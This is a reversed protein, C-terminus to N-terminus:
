TFETFSQLPGLFHPFFVATSQCAAHAGSMAVIIVPNNAMQVFADLADELVMRPNDSFPPGVRVFYMPVLLASLTVFGFVGEWGVAQLPPVNHKTVFKEEWVQTADVDFMM